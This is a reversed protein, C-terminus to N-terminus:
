KSLLLYLVDIIRYMETSCRMQGFKHLFDFCKKKMADIKKGDYFGNYFMQVKFMRQIDQFNSDAKMQPNSSSVKLECRQCDCDVGRQKLLLQRQVDSQSDHLTIYSIFLEDGKKIPRIVICNVSGNKLVHCVNPICSHSLHKAVINIYTDTIGQGGIPAIRKNYAGQLIMAVHHQVLHMLFRRHANTRFFAAMERHELLLQYFLYAQELHLPYMWWARSSQFFACYKSKADVLNLPQVTGGRNMVMNEVCAILEDVNQFANKALSISRVVDMFKFDAPCGYNMDCEIGHLKSDKCNSCFLASTCKPCPTFNLRERLCLMCIKYHDFKTVGIYCPEVMVTKGVDIDAAAIIRHGFGDGSQIDVVNALCPFQENAEFDLKPASSDSQDDETEMLKLCDNRRRELKGMLQSPYQNQMALEIDVLCKGFMKLKLFCNSRNAYALGLTRSGNEAFCLSKNYWEIANIFFGKEFSTNGNQRYTNSIADNKYYSGDFNCGAKSFKHLIYQIEVSHGHFLDVYLANRLNSEKKWLM